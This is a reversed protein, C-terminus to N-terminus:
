NHDGQFPMQDPIALLLDVLLSEGTRHLLLNATM